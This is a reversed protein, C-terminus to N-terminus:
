HLDLCTRGPKCGMCPTEVGVFSYLLVTFVVTSVAHEQKRNAVLGSVISKSSVGEAAQGPNPSGQEAARPWGTDDDGSFYRRAAEM